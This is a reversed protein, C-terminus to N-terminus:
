LPKTWTASRYRSRIALGTRGHIPPTAPAAVAQHHRQAQRTRFVVTPTLIGIRDPQCPGPNCTRTGDDDIDGVPQGGMSAPWPKGAGYQNIYSQFGDAAYATDGNLGSTVVVLPISGVGKLIGLQTAIEAIPFPNTAYVVFTGRSYYINAFTDTPDNCKPNVAM